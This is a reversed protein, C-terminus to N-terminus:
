VQSLCSSFFPCSRRHGYPLTTISLKTDLLMGYRVLGVIASEPCSNSPRALSDHSLYKVTLVRALRELCLRFSKVLPSKRLPVLRNMFHSYHEPVSFRPQRM